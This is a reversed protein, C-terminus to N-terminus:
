NVTQNISQSFSQNVSQNVFLSVSQSVARCVLQSVSAPHEAPQLRVFHHISRLITSNNEGCASRRYVVYGADCVYLVTSETYTAHPVFVYDSPCNSSTCHGVRRVSEGVKKYAEALTLMQM